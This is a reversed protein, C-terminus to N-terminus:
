EQMSLALFVYRSLPIFAQADPNARAYLRSKAAAPFRLPRRVTREDRAGRCRFIVCPM